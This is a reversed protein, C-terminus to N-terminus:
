DSYQWSPLIGRCMWGTKM